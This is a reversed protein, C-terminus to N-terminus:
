TCYIICYQSYIDFEILTQDWIYMRVYPSVGAFNSLNDYKGFLVNIRVVKWWIQEPWQTGFTILVSPTKYFIHGFM